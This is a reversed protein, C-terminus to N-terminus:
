SQDTEATGCYGGQDIIKEAIQEPELRWYLYYCKHAKDLPDDEWDALSDRQRKSLRALAYLFATQIGRTTVERENNKADIMYALAWNVCDDNRSGELFANADTEIASLMRGADEIDIM